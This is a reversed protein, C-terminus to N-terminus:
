LGGASIKVRKVKHRAHYQRAFDNLLTNYLQAFASYRADNGDYLANVSILNLLYIDDYPPKVLLETTLDTLTSYPEFEAAGEYRSCILDNVRGDLSSILRIKEAQTLTNEEVADFAALAGGLTM